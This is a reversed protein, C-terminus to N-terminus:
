KESLTKQAEVIWDAYHAVKTAQATGHCRRRGNKLMPGDVTSNIGILKLVGNNHYFQPGGSDGQCLFVPLDTDTHYRERYKTYKDNIRMEGRRLEGSFMLPDEGPYGQYDIYRGFGYVYISSGSYDTTTDTDYGIPGYGRPITGEFKAVAIDNIYWGTRNYRRHVVQGTIPLTVGPNRVGVQYKNTFVINHRVATPILKKDFCHGATLVTNASILTGTCFSVSKNSSDLMEVLVVARAAATGRSTVRTGSILGNQDTITVESHNQSEPACGALLSLSLAALLVLRYFSM